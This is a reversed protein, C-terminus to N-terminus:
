TTSALAQASSLGLVTNSFEAASFCLCLLAIPMVAPSLSKLAADSIILLNLSWLAEVFVMVAALSARNAALGCFLSSMAFAAVAITVAM